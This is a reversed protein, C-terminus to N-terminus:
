FSLRQYTRSTINWFNLLPINCEVGRLSIEDKFNLSEMVIMSILVFCRSSFWANDCIIRKLEQFRRLVLLIKFIDHGFSVKVEFKIV